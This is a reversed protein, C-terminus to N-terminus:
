NFRSINMEEPIDKGNELHDFLIQAAYPAILVGRSGLGNLVALKPHVPHVGVLPRRDKVTPRVGARQGIVEYNEGILRILHKEIELRGEDTPEDSKDFRNYTAGVLYEDNELPILFM